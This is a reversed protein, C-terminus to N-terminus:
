EKPKRRTARQLLEHVGSKTALWLPGPDSLDLYDYWMPVFFTTGCDILAKAPPAAGPQGPQRLAAITTAIDGMLYRM